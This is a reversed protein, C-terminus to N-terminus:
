LEQFPHHISETLISEAIAESWRNVTHPCRKAENIQFVVRWKFPKMDPKNEGFRHSILKQPKMEQKMEKWLIFQVPTKKDTQTQTKHTHAHTVM